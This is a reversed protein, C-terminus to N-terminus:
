PRSGPMEVAQHYSVGSGDMEFRTSHDQPLEALAIHQSGGWGSEPTPSPSWKAELMGATSPLGTHGTAPSGADEMHRPLMRHTEEETRKRYRRFLLWGIGAVIGAGALSCGVGIGVTAGTSIGGTDSGGAGANTATPGGASTNTATPGDTSTDTSSSSPPKTATSTPPTDSVTTSASKGDAADQFEQQSLSIPTNSDNCSDRMVEYTRDVDDPDEKGLCGATNTIFNRTNGCLCENLEPVTPASNCDSKDAAQELCGQAGQPYFGFDNEIALSPGGALFLLWLLRARVM